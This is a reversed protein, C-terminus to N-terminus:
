GISRRRGSRRPGHDDGRRGDREHDSRDPHVRRDRPQAPLSRLVAAPADRGGGRRDREAAARGSARAGAHQHQHSAPHATVAARVQQTTHKLLYPRKPELPKANMWVVTAEIHRDVHPLNDRRCWCIAAASISRTKWAHGHGVAASLGAVARRRLHRDIERPQHPRSPLVMVPDGPRIIGSAVQGAYGRFDLNPRLVYQVPFRMDTLNRDTAIPVTKWTSWCARGTSGRCTRASPEVM